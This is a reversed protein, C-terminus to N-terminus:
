AYFGTLTVLAGAFSVGLMATVLVGAAAPLRRRGFALLAGAVLAALPAIAPFTYRGFEAVVPRTGPTYFAAEFGAIVALPSLVLVALEPLKGRLAPWERRAALVGLAATGLMAIFIVIYVWHRFFVDYWGFAGWGREVFIVFGPYHTSEWHPAMFPLRPLFVQWVYAAYGLPHDLVSSATSSVAGSGPTNGSSARLVGGLGASLGKAAAAAAVLAAWGPLQERRHHRWLAIVFALAAVPYLSYATGKVIPLLLLLAGTLAGSRLTVGRRLVRVLLLELAAAGANVGVDNNVSGSIFSYMPQFSVLLAALVALAPLRPALERVLLYTFLAALAGILASTLRM